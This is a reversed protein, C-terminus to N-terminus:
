DMITTTQLVIFKYSFFLIFHFAITWFSKLWESKEQHEMKMTRMHHKIGSMGWEDVWAPAWPVWTVSTWLQLYNIVVAPQVVVVQAFVVSTVFIPKPFTNIGLFGAIEFVNDDCEQLPLHFQPFYKCYYYYNRYTAFGCKCRHSFKSEVIAVWPFGIISLAKRSSM